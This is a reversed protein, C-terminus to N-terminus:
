KCEPFHEFVIRRAVDPLDTILADCGAEICKHMIDESDVTWPNVRIGRLHCEHVIGPVEFIQGWDPHIANASLLGAYVWPFLIRQGYLPAVSVKNNIEHLRLMNLHNFDSYYVRDTLGYREALAICMGPLEEEYSKIEVNITLNTPALLGFVEDLLPAKVFGYKERREESGLNMNYKVIEDYTMDKIYGKDMDPNWIDFNHHVVIKGDKTLHIDLEVGDAKMEAALAFAPLTNEPAYASAGRHAWVLTRENLTREM